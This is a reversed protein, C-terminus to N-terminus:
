GYHLGHGDTVRANGALRQLARAGWELPVMADSVAVGPLAGVHSVRSRTTIRKAPSEPSPICSVPVWNVAVVAM